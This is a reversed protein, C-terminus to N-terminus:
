EAHPSARERALREELAAYRHRLERYRASGDASPRVFDSSMPTVFEAVIAPWDSPGGSAVVDAHWARLAAGLCSSNTVSLRRVDVGFVDALVQLIERNASAGGTAHIDEIRVRMWDTHNAMAMMQGEVVARVNRAADSEDLGQRYVGAEAVSPTIEPVFWPVLLAGDNGPPTTQLAQSFTAWNLGYKDRVAERALSGNAFCTLGMLGGTPAGFLHGDGARSPRAESVLGFVTDSTGLSVALRGERILGTGILSSPNDGTGVVVRAAPLGFRGQWYASLRGVIAEPGVISPLKAMLDPAVAAMAEPWWARTTLDMLNMGSADGPDLPASSGILISTLFSSVLDIRVTAAYGEPESTAYKRIQAATFREYARSGTRAALIHPGGLADTIARCEDSTSSDLWIPSRLRSFIGSLQGALPERPDLATLRAGAHGNLYVSGHQQAALAVARLDRLEREHRDAFRGMLRDLAAAWMAPPAGVVGPEPGRLTGHVTGYEPLEDDYQCAEVAAVGSHAGVELLMATVGQTSSDFGLYFPM